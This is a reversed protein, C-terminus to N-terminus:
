ETAGRDTRGTPAEDDWNRSQRSLAVHRVHGRPVEAAEERSCDEYPIELSVRQSSVWNNLSGRHEFAAQFAARAQDCFGDSDANEQLMADNALKTKYANYHADGARAGDRKKFFALMARDSRQLQPRYGLVFRNYSQTEHCTLAAVMLEQQLAALKLSTYDRPSACREGAMAGEVTFMAAVAIAVTKIKLSM